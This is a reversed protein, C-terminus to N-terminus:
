ASGINVIRGWGRAKMLPLLAHTVVYNGTLNIDIVNRWQDLTMDTFTTSPFSGACNILIDLGGHARALAALEDADDEDTINATSTIMAPDAGVERELTSLAVASADTGIVTDGNALFRKVIETGIGGGAGTILVIRRTMSM